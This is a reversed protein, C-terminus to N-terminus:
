PVQETQSERLRRYLAAEGIGLIKAAETRNGHTASLVRRIHEWEIDALSKLPTLTQEREDEGELARSPYLGLEHLRRGLSDRSIGLRRATHHQDEDAAELARTLLIRDLRRHAEAYQDGGEFSLCRRVFADM